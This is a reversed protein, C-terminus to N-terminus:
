QLKETNNYIVTLMRDLEAVDHDSLGEYITNVFVNAKENFSKIVPQAKDTLSIRVARRDITDREVTVYGGQNLSEVCRSIMGKSYHTQHSVYRVTHPKHGMFLCMLIDMECVTLGFEAATAKALKEHKSSVAAGVKVFKKGMKSYDKSM